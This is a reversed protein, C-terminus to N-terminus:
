NLPTSHIHMPKARIPENRCQVQLHSAPPALKIQQLEAGLAGYSFFLIFFPRISRVLPMCAHM